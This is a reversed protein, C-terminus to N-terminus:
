IPCHIFRRKLRPMTWQWTQYGGWCRGTKPVTRLSSQFTLIWSWGSRWIRQFQQFLFGKRFVIVCSWVRMYMCVYMCVYMVYMCICIYIYINIYIYIRHNEWFIIVIQKTNWVNWPHIVARKTELDGAAFTMGVWSVRCFRPLVWSSFSVMQYNFSIHIPYFPFVMTTPIHILYKIPYKWPVETFYWHFVM